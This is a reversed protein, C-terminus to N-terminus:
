EEEEWGGGPARVSWRRLEPAIKEPSDTMPVAGGAVVVVREALDYVPELEHTSIVLTLGERAKQRVFSRLEIASPYDLGAFPEDLLLMRPGALLAHILCLKRKQGYSLTDVPEDWLAAMGFMETFRTAAADFDEALESAARGLEVDERVTAGLIQLDADQMVMRSFRRLDAAEYLTDNETERITGADKEVLGALLRLLTTKGGANPGVLLSIGPSLTLNVNRLTSDRGPYTFNISDLTLM